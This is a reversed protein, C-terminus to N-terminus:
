KTAEPYRAELEACQAATLAPPCEGPASEPMPAKTTPDSGLALCEARSLSAPCRKEEGVHAPSKEQRSKANATEKCLQDSLGPPCGPVSQKDPASSQQQAPKPQPNPNALETQDPSSKPKQGVQGGPNETTLGHPRVPEGGPSATTSGTESAAGCASLLVAAILIAALTGAPALLKKLREIAPV